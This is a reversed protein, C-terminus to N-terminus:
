CLRCHQLGYDLELVQRNRMRRKSRAQLSHSLETGLIGTSGHNAKGSEVGEAVGFFVISVPLPTSSAYANGAGTPVETWHSFAEGGNGRWQVSPVIGGCTQRLDRYQLVLARSHADRDPKRPLGQLAVQAHVHWAGHTDVPVLELGAGPASEAAIGAADRCAQPPFCIDYM